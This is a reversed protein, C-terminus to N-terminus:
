AVALHDLDAHECDIYRAAKPKTLEKKNCPCWDCNVEGGGGEQGVSKLKGATGELLMGLALPPLEPPPSPSRSKSSRVLRNSFSFPLFHNRIAQFSTNPSALQKVAYKGKITYLTGTFMGKNAGPHTICIDRTWFSKVM